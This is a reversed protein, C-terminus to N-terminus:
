LFSFPSLSLSFSIYMCMCTFIHTNGFIPTGWIPHHFYHFVRNFHIIQPSFGSNESVGMYWCMKRNTNSVVLFGGNKFVLFGWLSVEWQNEVAWPDFNMDRFYEHQKLEGRPYSITQNCRIPLIHINNYHLMYYSIVCWICHIYVLM